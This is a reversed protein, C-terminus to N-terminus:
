LPLRALDQENELIPAAWKVVQAASAEVRDRSTDLLTVRERRLGALSRLSENFHLM